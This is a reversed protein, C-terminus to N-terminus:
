NDVIQKLKKVDGDCDPFPMYDTPRNDREDIAKVFKQLKAAKGVSKKSFSHRDNGAKIHMKHPKRPAVLHDM